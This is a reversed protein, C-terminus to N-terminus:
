LVASLPYTSRIFFEFEAAAMPRGFLYGQCADCHHAALFARQEESEVGEAIVTMGLSQGLSIITDVITANDKDTLVHQTFSHGIKLQDIPLRKLHSFSSYGTGFDDLM